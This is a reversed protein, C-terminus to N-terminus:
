PRRAPGTITGGTGATYTLTYTTGAAAPKLPVAATAWWGTEAATWSMM